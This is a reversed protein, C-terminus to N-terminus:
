YDFKDLDVKFYKGRFFFKDAKSMKVKRWNIEKFFKRFFQQDHKILIMLIRRVLRVREKMDGIVEGHEMWELARQFKKIPNGWGMYSVMWQFRFRYSDDEQLIFTVLDCMVSNPAVKKWARYLERVAPVMKKTPLMDYRLEEFHEFVNPLTKKIYDVVEEESVGEELKYWSDNFIQNKFEHKVKSLKGYLLWGRPFGPFIYPEGEMKMVTVGDIEMVKAQVMDSKKWYSVMPM